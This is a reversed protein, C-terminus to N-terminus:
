LVFRRTWDVYAQETRISYHKVRIRERVQDLLRPPRSFRSAELIVSMTLIIAPATELGFLLDVALLRPSTDIHKYRAVNAGKIAKYKLRAGLM